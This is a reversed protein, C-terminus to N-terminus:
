AITCASEEASPDEDEEAPVAGAQRRRLDRLREVLAPAIRVLPEAVRTVVLPALMTRLLLGLTRCSGDGRAVAETYYLHAGLFIEDPGAGEMHVISGYGAALTPLDVSHARFDELVYGIQTAMQDRTVVPGGPLMANVAAAVVAPQLPPLRDEACARTDFAAELAARQARTLPTAVATEFQDLLEPSLERKLALLEPPVESPFLPLLDGLATASPPSPPSSPSRPPEELLLSVLPEGLELPVRSREVFQSLRVPLVVSRREVLQAERLIQAVTAARRVISESDLAMGLALIIGARVAANQAMRWVWREVEQAAEHIAAPSATADALRADLAEQAARLPRDIEDRQALLAQTEIQASRGLPFPIRAHAAGRELETELAHEAMAWTLNAVRTARQAEALRGQARMGAAVAIDQAHEAPDTDAPPASPAPPPSLLELPAAAPPGRFAGTELRPPTVVLRPDVPPPSLPVPPRAREGAGGRRARVRRLTEDWNDALLVQLDRYVTELPLTTGVMAEEVRARAKPSIRPTARAPSALLTGVQNAARVFGADGELLGLALMNAAAEAAQTRLHGFKQRLLGFARRIAAPNTAAANRVEIYRQQVADRNVALFGVAQLMAMLAAGHAGSATSRESAEAAVGRALETVEQSLAQGERMMDDASSVPDM